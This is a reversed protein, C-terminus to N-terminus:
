RSQIFRSVQAGTIGPIGPSVEIHKRFKESKAKTLRGLINQGRCWENVQAGLDTVNLRAVTFTTM